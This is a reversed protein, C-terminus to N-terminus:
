VIGIDLVVLVVVGTTAVAKVKVALTGEVSVPLCNKLLSLTKGLPVAFQYISSTM